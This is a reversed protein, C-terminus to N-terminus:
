ESKGSFSFPIGKSMGRHIWTSVCAQLPSSSARSATNDQNLSRTRSPRPRSSGGRTRPGSLSVAWGSALRAVKLVAAEEPPLPDTLSSGLHISWRSGPDFGKQRETRPGKEAGPGSDRRDTGCWRVLCSAREEDGCEAEHDQGSGGGHVLSWERTEKQWRGAGAAREPSVEARRHEAQSRVEAMSPIVCHQAGTGPVMFDRLIVVVDSPQYENLCSVKGLM